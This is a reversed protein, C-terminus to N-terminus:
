GDIVAWIKGQKLRYTLAKNPRSNSTKQICFQKSPSTRRLPINLTDPLNLEILLEQPM